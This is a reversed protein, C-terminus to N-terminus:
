YEVSKAWEEAAAMLKTAVGRRRATEAVSLRWISAIKSQKGNKTDDHSQHGKGRRVGVCWGVTGDIDAVLFTRDEAMMWKVMINAGNPGIDGDESTTNVAEKRFAWRLLPRWPASWNEITQSLGNVWIKAVVPSDKEQLPRITIKIRNPTEEESEGSNSTEMTRIRTREGLESVQYHHHTHKHFPSLSLHQHHPITGIPM